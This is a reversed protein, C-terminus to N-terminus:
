SLIVLKLHSYTKEKNLQPHIKDACLTLLTSTRRIADITELMTDTIELGCRYMALHKLNVANRIFNKVTEEDIGCYRIHFCELHILQQALTVIFDCNPRYMEDLDVSDIGEYFIHLKLEELQTFKALCNLIGDFKDPNLYMLKLKKLNTMATLHEVNEAYIDPYGEYLCLKEVNPLHLPIQKLLNNSDNAEIKLYLLQPNNKMFELVLREEMYQNNLISIRELKPQKKSLLTGNLNMYIKLTKLNPCYQQFDIDYEFDYNFTRIDLLEIQNLLPKLHLLWGQDSPVYKLRITKLNPGIYQCMKYFYREVNKPYKDMRFYIGLESIHSGICRLISRTESLSIASRNTYDSLQFDFRKVSPLIRNNLTEKLLDSNSKSSISILTRLLDFLSKQDKESDRSIVDFKTLLDAVTDKEVPEMCPVSSPQSWTDAPLIECIEEFKSGETFARYAGEDTSFTVHAWSGSNEGYFIDIQEIDGCIEFNDRIWQADKVQDKFSFYLKRVITYQSKDFDTSTQLCDEDNWVFPM